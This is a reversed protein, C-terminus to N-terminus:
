VGGSARVSDNDGGAGAGTRVLPVATLGLRAQALAALTGIAV